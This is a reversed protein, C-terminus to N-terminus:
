FPKHSFVYLISQRRLTLGVYVFADEYRLKETRGDFSITITRRGTVEWTGIRSEDLYHFEATGDEYLMISPWSHGDVIMRDEELLQDPHSYYKSFCKWQGVFFEAYSDKLVKEYFLSYCGVLTSTALLIVLLRKLTINRKIKEM